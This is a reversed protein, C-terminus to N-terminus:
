VRSRYWAVGGIYALGMAAAVIAFGSSDRHAVEAVAYGGLSVAVGVLAMLMAARDNILRWREDVPNGALTALTESRGQFAAIVAAYAVVIVFATVSRDAALGAAVEAAAMLGGLVVGAVLVQWRRVLMTM